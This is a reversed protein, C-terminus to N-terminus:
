SAVRLARAAASLDGGHELVAYARFRTYGHPDGATTVQFPTNPSYVFLCGNAVTASVQSTATPHRWRAGDRDGDGDLCTWGAPTLVDAWSAAASFADAVSGPRHGTFPRRAPRPVPREAPRLLTVLWGPAEVPAPLGAWRYASRAGEPHVSPPVVCYGSSIKVDIGDPLRTDGIPGGPHKYYRHCGGDGRGSYVTLTEPLPGHRRELEALVEVAGPKRPDLDLVFAGAPVRAGINATPMATWWAAVQDLDTSADLVGRGGAARSIAPVKGRLPFVRWGRAALAVADAGIPADVLEAVPLQEVLVRVAQVLEATV